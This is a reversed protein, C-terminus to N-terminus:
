PLWTGAEWNIDDNLISFGNGRDDVSIYEIKMEELEDQVSRAISESLTIPYAIEKALQMKLLQSFEPTFLLTDEIKATYILRVGDSNVLLTREAELKYEIPNGSLDCVEQASLFDSPLDFQKDYGFVPASPRPSLVIRKTAFSWDGLRLCYDRALEYHQRVVKANQLTSLEVDLIPNQGLRTLAMNMIDSETVM